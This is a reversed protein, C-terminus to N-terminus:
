GAKDVGIRAIPSQRPKLGRVQRLGARIAAGAPRAIDPPLDSLGRAAEVLSVLEQINMRSGNAPPVSRGMSVRERITRELWQSVTLNADRAASVVMNRVENPMSKITWPKVADTTGVLPVDDDDDM